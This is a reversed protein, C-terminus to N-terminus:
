GPSCWPPLAPCRLCHVRLAILTHTQLRVQLRRPSTVPLSCQTMRSSGSGPRSPVGKYQRNLRRRRQAVGMFGSTGVELRGVCM